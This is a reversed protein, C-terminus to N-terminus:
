IAELEQVFRIAALLANKFSGSLWKTPETLKAVVLEKMHMQGLRFIAQQEAASGGSSLEELRDAAIKMIRCGHLSCSAEYECGFCRHNDPAATRLAKVIEKTEM